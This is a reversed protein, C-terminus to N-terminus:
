LLNFRVLPLYTIIQSKTISNVKIVLEQGPPLKKIFNLTKPSLKAGDNDSSIFMGGYYYGVTFHEIRFWKDSEPLDDTFFLNISDATFFTARNIVSKEKIFIKGVCLTPSPVILVIFQKKGIILTDNNDNIFYTTVFSRGANNPITLFGNESKVIIGNNVGLFLQTSKLITDPLSIELYNDIGCYLFNGKSDTSNIAVKNWYNNLILSDNASMKQANLHHFQSFVILFILIVRKMLFYNVGFIIIPFLYVM